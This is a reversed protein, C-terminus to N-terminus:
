HTVSRKMSTACHLHAPKDAGHLHSMGLGMNCWIHHLQLYTSNLRTYSRPVVNPSRVPPLISDMRIDSGRVALHLYQQISKITLLCACPRMGKLAEQLCFAHM